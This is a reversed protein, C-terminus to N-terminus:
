TDARSAAAFAADRQEKTLVNTELSGEIPQTAKGWGRDLIVSSAAVRAAPPAKGDEMVRVLTAIANETQARALERVRIDAKPRGGPNGSQGKEFAM